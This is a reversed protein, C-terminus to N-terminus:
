ACTTQRWPAAEIPDPASEFAPQTFFGERLARRLGVVQHWCDCRFLGAPCTCSSEGDTSVLVHYRDIPNRGIVEYHGDVVKWARRNRVMEVAPTRPDFFRAM